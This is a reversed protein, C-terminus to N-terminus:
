GANALLAGVATEGCARVGAKPRANQGDQVAGKDRRGARHAISGHLEAQPVDGSQPGRCASHCGSRHMHVSFDFVKFRSRLGLVHVIACGGLAWGDGFSMQMHVVVCANMCAPCVAARARVIYDLEDNNPQCFVFQLASLFRCFDKPSEVDQHGGGTMSLQRDAM